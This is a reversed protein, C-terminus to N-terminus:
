VLAKISFVLLGRSTATFDLTKDDIPYSRVFLQAPMPGFLAVLVAQVQLTVVVALYNVM